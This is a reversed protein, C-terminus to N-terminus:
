VHQAATCVQAIGGHGHGPIHSRALIVNAHNRVVVVHHSFADLGIVGIHYWLFDDHILGGNDQFFVPRTMLTVRGQRKNRSTCTAALTPILFYYQIITRYFGNVKVHRKTINGCM